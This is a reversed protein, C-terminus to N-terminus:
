DNQHAFLSNTLSAFIAGIHVFGTPSPALRTIIKETRKPYKQERDAITHHIDPFTANAIDARTTM